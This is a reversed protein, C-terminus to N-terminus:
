LKRDRNDVVDILMPAFIRPIIYNLSGELLSMTESIVSYNCIMENSSFQKIGSFRLESPVLIAIRSQRIRCPIIYHIEQAEGTTPFLPYLRYTEGQFYFSNDSTFNVFRAITIIGSIPLAFNHEAGELLQFAEPQYATTTSDDSVDNKREKLYAALTEHAQIIDMASEAGVKGNLDPHHQKILELYSRRLLAPAPMEKLGLIALQRDIDYIRM